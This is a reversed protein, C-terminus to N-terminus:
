LSNIMKKDELQKYLDEWEKTSQSILSQVQSYKHSLLVVDQEGPNSLFLEISQLEKQLNEIKAEQEDIKKQLASIEKSLERHSIKPLNQDPKNKISKAEPVFKKKQSFSQYEVFTGPYQVCEQGNIDLIQKCLKKLLWRDHSILILTGQYDELIEGLAECSEIDLHNTPEDLILLNPKDAVLKALVVKNREGGSFSKLPRFADDEFILFQGLISRAEQQPMGNLNCLIDIPSLNLDLDMTDQAFYGIKVKSGISTKGSTAQLYGLIIKLLTSKGAGNAGIVGWKEQWRVCWDFNKFLTRQSIDFNLKQCELVIEGSREVNRFGGQMQKQAKPAEIKESELREKIKLRGRAQATRQSNMFRRVFSDLQDIRQQQQEAVEALRDIENQRIQLYKEFPGEYQVIEGDRMEFILEATNQLFERDHSVMIVAGIYHKVWNELWMIADIDLHNTPEDLILLDPQEILLKALSLRTKEGGSLNKIKKTHDEPMFGMKELVMQMDRELQSIQVKELRALVNTYHDLLEDTPNISLEHEIEKLQEQAQLFDDCATQMEEWITHDNKLTIHQSLYGIRCMPAKWITGKQIELDGVILKLLTTKGAGNPGVLAVKKQSDLNFSINKLILDAGFSIQVHSIKLLM